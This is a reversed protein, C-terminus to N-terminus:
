VGVLLLLLTSETMMPTNNKAPKMYRSTVFQDSSTREHVAINNDQEHAGAEKRQECHRDPQELLNSPTSFTSRDIPALM